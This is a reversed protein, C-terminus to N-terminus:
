LGSAEVWGLRYTGPAFSGFLQNSNLFNRQAGRSLITSDVSPNSGPYGAAIALSATSMEDGWRWVCGCVMQMKLYPQGVQAGRRLSQM